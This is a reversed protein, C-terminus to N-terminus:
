SARVGMSCMLELLPVAGFAAVSSRSPKTTTKNLMAARYRARVGRLGGPAWETVRLFLAWLGRPTKM